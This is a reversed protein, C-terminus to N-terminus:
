ANVQEKEASCKAEDWEKESFDLLSTQNKEWLIRAAGLYEPKISARPEPLMDNSSGMTYIAHCNNCRCEGHALGWELGINRDCVECLWEASMPWNMAGRWYKM